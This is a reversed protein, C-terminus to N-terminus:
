KLYFVENTISIGALRKKRHEILGNDIAADVVQRAVRLTPEAGCSDFKHSRYAKILDIKSYGGSNKEVLIAVYLVDDDTIETQM